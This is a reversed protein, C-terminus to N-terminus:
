PNQGFHTSVLKALRDETVNIFEGTWEHPAYLALAALIQGVIFPSILAGSGHYGVFKAYGEASMGASGDRRITKQMPTDIKGPRFAISTIHPEETALTRAFHNVGAKAASYASWGEEVLVAAGSSVTIVRGSRQRLHPLAYHTLNFVGVLNIMVNQAWAQPDSDAITSIPHIVGANNVITDLSGYRALTQEIVRQCAAADSVDCPMAMAEGGADTIQKTVADLEDKTRALLVVTAGKESLIQAAAAGLGRSAGTIIIVPKSM